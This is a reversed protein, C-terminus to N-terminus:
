RSRQENRDEEIWEPVDSESWGNLRAQARNRSVFGQFREVLLHKSMEKLVEEPNRNQVRAIEEIQDTIAELLTSREEATM